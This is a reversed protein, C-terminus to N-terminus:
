GAGGDRVGAHLDQLCRVSVRPRRAAEIASVAASAGALTTISAIGRELAATRIEYGDSRASRGFPTNVVLVIEGGTILSVVHPEGQFVKNVVRVPIGLSTLATATGRTAYITFGLAHLRQALITAASKDSDCVSLFVSGELPLPARVAAHAKGFATPFDDAIGMVEGTSKMEPGLRTDTGPFRDFPLVAEKVSVHEPVLREPLDFDRLRQGLIIRTALKALQVGTAKSVFPVTRSGRPNVELVYLRYDQYAFQVNILGRVGLGIALQRTQKRVQELTGEGLSISPIVCASDGSHVGAEEVHQMVAGVYVDEGDCLADVDVEIADELFRDILVPHDPSVRAAREM